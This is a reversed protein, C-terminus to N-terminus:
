MEYIEYNQRKSWLSKLLLWIDSIAGSANWPRRESLESYTYM